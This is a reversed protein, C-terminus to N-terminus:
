GNRKAEALDSEVMERVLEDFLAADFFRHDCRGTAALLSPMLKEAHLYGYVADHM